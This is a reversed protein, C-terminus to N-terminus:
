AGDGGRLTADRTTLDFGGKANAAQHCPVCKAALAPAIKSEFLGGAGADHASCSLTCFIWLVLFWRLYWLM